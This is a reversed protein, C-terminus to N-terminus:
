RGAPTRPRSSPRHRRAVYDWFSREFEGWNPPVEDPGEEGGDDGDDRRMWVILGTLPTGIGFLLMGAPDPVVAVGLFMAVVGTWGIARCRKYHVSVLDRMNPDHVIALILLFPSALWLWGVLSM